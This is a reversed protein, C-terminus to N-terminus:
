RNRAVRGEICKGDSLRQRMKVKKLYFHLVCLRQQPYKMGLHRETRRM